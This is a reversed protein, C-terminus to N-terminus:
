ELDGSLIVAYAMRPESDEARFGLRVAAGPPLDNTTNEEDLAVLTIGPAEEPTCEILFLPNQRGEGLAPLHLETRGCLRARGSLAVPQLTETLCAPCRPSLPRAFRGCASCRKLILRGSRAGDWFHRTEATEVPIPRPIPPAPTERTNGTDQTM